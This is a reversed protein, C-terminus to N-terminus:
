PDNQSKREQQLIKHERRAQVKRTNTGGNLVCLRSFADAVVNDKGKVHRVTFDFEQISVMWRLVKPDSSGKLYTLNAHDTMLVFTRDLLLHRWKKMAYYIAFGEQQFTCWKKLREDFAKSIFAVPVEDNGRRQFLYAGMGTNCADTQLVIENEDDLFHLM